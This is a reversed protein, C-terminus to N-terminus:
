SGLGRRPLSVCVFQDRWPLSDHALAWLKDAANRGRGGGPRRPALLAAPGPRQRALYGRRTGQLPQLCARARSRLHRRRQRTRCRAAREVIQTLHLARGYACRGGAGLPRGQSRARVGARPTSVSTPTQGRCPTPSCGPPSVEDGLTFARSRTGSEVLDVQRAVFAALAERDIRYEVNRRENEKRQSSDVARCASASATPRTRWRAPADADSPTALRFGPRCAAPGNASCLARRQEM